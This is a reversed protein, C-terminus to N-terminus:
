YVVTAISDRFVVVQYGYDYQMSGTQHHIYDPNGWVMRVERTTMGATVCLELMCRQVQEPRQHNEVYEKRTKESVPGQLAMRLSNCGSLALTSLVISVTVVIFFFRTM